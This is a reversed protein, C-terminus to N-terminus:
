KCSVATKHPKIIQVTFKNMQLRHIKTTIKICTSSKHHTLPRHGKIVFLYIILIEKKKKL